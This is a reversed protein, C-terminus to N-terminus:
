DHREALERKLRAIEDEYKKVHHGGPPTADPMDIDQSEAYRDILWNIFYTIKVRGTNSRAEPVSSALRKIAAHREKGHELKIYKKAM